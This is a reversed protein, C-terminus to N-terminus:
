LESIFWEEVKQRAWPTKRLFTLSSKVSPNILFCRIPIRQAMEAWGHREVLRNVIMELTVGYLPDRPHPSPSPVPALVEPPSKGEATASGPVSGSRKLFVIRSINTIVPPKLRQQIAAPETSSGTVEYLGTFFWKGAEERRVYVPLPGTTEALKTGWKPLEGKRGVWVECPDSEALPNWKLGLCLGLIVGDRHIVFHPPDTQGGLLARVEAFEYGEGVVHPPSAPGPLKDLM